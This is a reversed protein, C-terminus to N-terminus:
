RPEAAAREKLKQFAKELREKVFKLHDGVCDNKHKKVYDVKIYKYYNGYLDMVDNFWEDDLRLEDLKNGAQEECKPCVHWTAKPHLAFDYLCCECNVEEWLEWTDESVRPSRYSGDIYGKIVEYSANVRKMKEICGGKDPHHVFAAKKYAAKLKELTIPLVVGLFACAELVGFM